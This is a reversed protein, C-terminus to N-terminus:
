KGASSGGAGDRLLQIAQAYGIGAPVATFQTEEETTDFVRTRFFVRGSMQMQFRVMRWQGSGVDAQEITISGGKYLRGLIGWGFDVDRELHGELRTIREHAIDIWIAGTMAALVQTELDPPNFGPNPKFTFKALKGSPSDEGGAYQYLFAGPLARLVKLARAADADESQKRHKQLGADALLADLRAQEKQQDDANLPQDNISLLMAVAGERTECIAKTSILRPSSKHLIYRMPHSADQAAQLENALARDVLAQGPEPAQAAGAAAARLLCLLLILRRVITQKPSHEAPM